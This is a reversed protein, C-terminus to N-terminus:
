PLILVVVFCLVIVFCFWPFWYFGFCDHYGCLLILFERFFKLSLYVFRNTTACRKSQTPVAARPVTAGRRREKDWDGERRTRTRPTAHRTATADIAPLFREVAAVCRWIPPPFSVVAADRSTTLPPATRHGDIAPLFVVVATLPKCRRSNTPSHHASNV